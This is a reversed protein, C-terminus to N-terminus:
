GLGGYIGHDLLYHMASPSSGTFCFNELYQNSRQGAATVNYGRGQGYKAQRIFLRPFYFDPVPRITVANIADLSFTPRGTQHFSHHQHFSGVSSLHYRHLNVTNLGHQLVRASDSFHQHPVFNTSRAWGGRSGEALLSFLRPVLNIVRDQRRPCRTYLPRHVLSKTSCLDSSDLVLKEVDPMLLLM